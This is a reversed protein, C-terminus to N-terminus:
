GVGGTIANPNGSRSGVFTIPSAEDVTWGGAVFANVDDDVAGDPGCLALWLELESIRDSELFLLGVFLFVIILLLM